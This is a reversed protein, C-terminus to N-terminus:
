RLVVEPLMRPLAPVLALHCHQRRVARRASRLVRGPSESALAVVSFPSLATHLRVDIERYTPRVGTIAELLDVATAAREFTSPDPAAETDIWAAVDLRDFDTCADVLGSPDPCHPNSAPVLVCLARPHTTELVPM